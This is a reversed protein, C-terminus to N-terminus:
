VRVAKQWAETVQEFVLRADRFANRGYVEYIIVAVPAMTSSDSRMVRIAGNDKGVRLLQFCGVKAEIKFEVNSM